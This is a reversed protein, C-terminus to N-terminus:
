NNRRSRLVQTHICCGLFVEEIVRSLLEFEDTMIRLKEPSGSQYSVDRFLGIHKSVSRTVVTGHWLRAGVEIGCLGRRRRTVLLKVENAQFGRVKFGNLTKENCRVRMEGPSELWGQM